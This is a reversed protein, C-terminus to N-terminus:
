VISQGPDGPKPGQADPNLPKVSNRRRRMLMFGAVVVLGAALVGTAVWLYFLLGPSGNPTGGGPVARQVTVSLLVFHARPTLTATVNVTYLSPTTSNTPSFRLQLIAMGGSPLSTTTSLPSVSLGGPSTSVSVSVNGSFGNVSVFTLNATKTLGQTVIASVPNASVAFDLLDISATFADQDVCGYLPDRTDCANRNDSWIIHATKSSAAIGIYDGIFPLNPGPFDTRLVQEPSFSVPTVRMNQTFSAGGDISYTYFLDLATMSTGTNLRSDYWAVNIIGGSVAITPFFHQGLPSDNVRFPPTWSSGRDSSRTIYVNVNGNRLDDWVLYVGHADAAIQPITFARFSGGQPSSELLSATDVAKVTQALTTGGNTIKSVQIYNLSNGTVPDFGDSSVYVDGAPGITVGPLEGSQDPPSYFPSSFTRGGDTSRTFLTAFNSTSTLNADFALYVNGDYPGGTTDVAIWEKDSFLPGRILSVSSYDAGDNGYKAVFVTPGGVMGASSINFVLGAYYVNGARDFALVPDTTANSGHLPSSLGLTSSDGPFGPLLSSSWTLGGDASRYYGHWRHLGNGVLRLDQAGAVLISANRPDIAITPEVRQRDPASEGAVEVNSVPDVLGQAGSKLLPSRSATLGSFEGSPSDVLTWTRTGAMSSLLIVALVAVHAM